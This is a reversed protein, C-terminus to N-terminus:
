PNRRPEKKEEFNEVIKSYFTSFASFAAYIASKRKQFVPIDAIFRM